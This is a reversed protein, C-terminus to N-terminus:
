YQSIAIHQNKRIITFYISMCHSLIRNLIDALNSSVRRCLHRLLIITGNATVAMIEHSKVNTDFNGTALSVLPNEVWNLHQYVVNSRPTYAISSVVTIESPTWLILESGPQFVDVDALTTGEIDQCPFGMVVYRERIGIWNVLFLVLLLVVYVGGLIDKQLRVM